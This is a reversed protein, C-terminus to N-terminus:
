SKEGSEARRLRALWRPPLSQQAGTSRLYPRRYRAEETMQWLEIAQSLSKALTLAASAAPSAAVIPRPSLAAVEEGASPLARAWALPAIKSTTTATYAALAEEYRARHERTEAILDPIALVGARLRAVVEAPLVAEIKDLAGAAAEETWGVLCRGEVMGMIATLREGDLDVLPRVWAGTPEGFPNLIWIAVVDAGDSGAGAVIVAYGRVGPPYDLTTGSDANQSEATITM